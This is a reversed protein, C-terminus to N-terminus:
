LFRWKVSSLFVVVGIMNKIAIRMKYETMEVAFGVVSIGCAALWLVFGFSLDNFTLIRPVKTVASDFKDYTVWSDYNILYQIIGSPNLKEIVESLSEYLISNRTIGFNMSDDVFKFNKLITAPSGCMTNTYGLVSKPMFFGLKATSDEYNACFFKLVKHQNDVHVTKNKKRPMLKQKLLFFMRPELYSVINYSRAFLDDLDRPPPKRMEDTIFEFLKNQYCTRFILCLFIFLIMVVRQLVKRPPRKVSNGFIVQIVNVFSSHLSRLNSLKHFIEMLSIMLFSTLFAIIILIWTTVDFPLLLKEYNTYYESPTTVIIYEYPYIPMLLHMFPDDTNFPIRWIKVYIESKNKSSLPLFEYKPTFNATKAMLEFLEYTLGRLKLNPAKTLNRRLDHCFQSKHAKLCAFLELNLSEINLAGGYNELITLPCQHFNLFKRHNKLELKWKRSKKFFINLTTPTIQNCIGDAFHNVTFLQLFKKSNIIFYEFTIISPIDTTFESFKTLIKATPEEIYFLIKLHKPYLNKFKAHRNFNHVSTSNKVFIVASDNLIHNWNGFNEMDRIIISSNKPYKKLVGNIVDSLHRSHEGYIIFDFKISNKIFFEKCISVIATSISTTSSQPHFISSTLTFIPLSIEFYILFKLFKM